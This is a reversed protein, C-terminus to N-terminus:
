FEIAKIEDNIGNMNFDEHIMKKLNAARRERARQREERSIMEDDIEQLRVKSQLARQKALSSSDDKSDMKSWRTLENAAASSKTTSETSSAVVQRYICPLHHTMLSNSNKFM